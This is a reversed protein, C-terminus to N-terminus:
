FSLQFKSYLAYNIYNKAEWTASTTFFGGALAPSVPSIPETGSDPLDGPPSCPVWELIRVQVIGHVSSGPLSCDIPDRLTLCLQVCVYGYIVSTCCTFTHYIKLSCFICLIESIFCGVCIVQRVSIFAFEPQVMQVAVVESM